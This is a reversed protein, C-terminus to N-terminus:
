RRFHGAKEARAALRLRDALGFGRSDEGGLFFGCRGRRCLLDIDIVVDAVADLNQVAREGREVADDLLEIEITAAHLDADRDEAACRRHLELELLDFPHLSTNGPEAPTEPSVVM